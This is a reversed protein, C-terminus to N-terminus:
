VEKELESENKDDCFIYPRCPFQWYYWSHNYKTSRTEKEVFDTNPDLLFLTKVEKELDSEDNDDCIYIAALSVTM